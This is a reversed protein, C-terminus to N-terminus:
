RVGRYWVAKLFEKHATLATLGNAHMDGGASGSSNGLDLWLGAHRNTIYYGEPMIRYYSGILDGINTLNNFGTEKEISFGRLDAKPSQIRTIISEASGDLFLIMNSPIMHNAIFSVGGINESPESTRNFIDINGSYALITKLKALTAKNAYAVLNGGSNDAYEDFFQVVAEIDSM